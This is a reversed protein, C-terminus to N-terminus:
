FLSQMDRLLFIYSSSFLIWWLPGVDWLNSELLIENTM